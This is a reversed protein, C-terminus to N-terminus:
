YVHEKMLDYIKRGYNPSKKALNELVDMRFAKALKHEEEPKCWVLKVKDEDMYKIITDDDWKRCWTPIEEEMDSSVKKLFAKMNDPLKDWAKASIFWFAHAEAFRPMVIYKYVGREGFSYRDSAMGVVGDVTGRQLAEFVEAAPILTASGGMAPIGIATQGGISRIKLGSWDGPKVPKTSLLTLGRGQNVPLLAMCGSKERLAENLVDMVKTKRMVDIFFLPDPRISGTAILEPTEGTFYDAGTYVMDVTGARMAAFQQMTGVVEPGGLNKITLLIPAKKVTEYTLRGFIAAIVFSAFAGMAASESPTAVGFFITGMVALILVAVPLLYKLSAVRDRFTITREETPPAIQPNLASAVVVFCSLLFAIVFGPIIGGILLPGVPMSAIGAFIVMLASPPILMDIGGTCSVSGIALWRAYGRRLMEPILVQGITATSAMSSGSAAGFIVGAAEAVVGLRGPVRGIWVDIASITLNAVGTHMLVSGMLIFLPVAVFVFSSVSDYAGTAITSLAGIGGHFFALIAAANLIGFCFAVPLGTAMLAVFGGFLIVLVIWWDM